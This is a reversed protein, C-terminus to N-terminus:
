GWGQVTVVSRAGTRENLARLVELGSRDRPDATLRLDIFAFSLAPHLLALAEDKSSAEVVEVKPLQELMSRLMVRLSRQDDVVLVKM